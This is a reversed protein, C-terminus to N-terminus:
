WYIPLLCKQTNLTGLEGTSILWNNCKSAQAVLVIGTALCKWTGTEVTHGAMVWIDLRMM